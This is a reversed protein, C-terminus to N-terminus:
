SASQCPLSSAASEGGEGAHEDAIVCYPSPSARSRSSAALTLSPAVNRRRMAQRGGEADETERRRLRASAIEERESRAAASVNTNDAVVCNSVM